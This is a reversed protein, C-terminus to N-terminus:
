VFGHRHELCQGPNSGNSRFEITSVMVFMQAPQGSCLGACKGPWPLHRAGARCLWGFQWVFGTSLAAARGPCHGGDGYLWASDCCQCDVTPKYGIHLQACEGATQRWSGPESDQMGALGQGWSVSWWVVRAAMTLGCQTWCFKAEV